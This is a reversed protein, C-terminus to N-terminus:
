LSDYYCNLLSLNFCHLIFRNGWSGSWHWNCNGSWFAASHMFRTQSLSKGAWWSDTCSERYNRACGSSHALRVGSSARWSVWRFFVFFVLINSGTIILQWFSYSMSTIRVLLLRYHLLTSPTRCIHYTLM